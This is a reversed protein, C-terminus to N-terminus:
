KRLCRDLIPTAEHLFAVSWREASAANLHSEDLTALGELHPVIVPVQFRKGVRDAIPEDTLISNPVATLIICHRPLRLTRLLSDAAKEFERMTAEDPAPPRTAPDIPITKNLEAFTGQWLWAGTERRRWLTQLKQSCAFPLTGCIPRVVRTFAAKLLYGYLTRWYLSNRKSIFMTAPTSLLKESFFTGDANIVIVDPNLNYQDILRQIFVMNEFYTFGALYYPVNKEQFYRRSTETSFGFQLRSNGLFLVRASRLAKTAEPELNWYFAGHEYDGYDAGNCYTLFASPDDNTRCALAKPLWYVFPFIATSVAATVAFVIILALNRM